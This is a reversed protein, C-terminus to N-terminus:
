SPAEPLPELLVFVAGSAISTFEGIDENWSLPASGMHGGLIAEFEVFVSLGNKSALRIVGAEVRGEHGYKVRCPEGTKWLRFARV